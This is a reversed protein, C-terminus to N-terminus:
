RDTQRIMTQMVTLIKQAGLPSLGIPFIGYTLIPLICTQWLHFRRSIRFQGTVAKAASGDVCGHLDLKPLHLGINRRKTLLIAM